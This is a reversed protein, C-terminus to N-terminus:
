SGLNMVHRLFVPEFQCNAKRCRASSTLRRFYSFALVDHMGYLFAIPWYTEHFAYGEDSGLVLIGALKQNKLVLYRSWSVLRHFLCVFCSELQGIEDHLFSNELLNKEDSSWSEEIM